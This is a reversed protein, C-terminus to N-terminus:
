LPKRAEIIWASALLRVADDQVHRQLREALFREAERRATDSAGRLRQALPGIRTMFRIARVLPSPDDGEAIEAMFEFTSERVDELGAGRLVTRFVTPDAWAFPGPGPHPGAAATGQAVFTMPVSAWQNRAAERWCVFVARGGPRMASVINRFAAVPDDFFMSGFRSYVADYSQNFGHREADAEVVEALDIGDLRQRAQCILDPSVDIGTVAGDPAVSSALMETSVGGGCGLDLVREGSRAGLAGLGASGAPGLLRELAEGRKAWEEGTRGIWDERTAM